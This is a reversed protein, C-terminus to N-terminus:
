RHRKAGCYDAKHAVVYGCDVDFNNIQVRHKRPQYNEYSRAATYACAVCCGIQPVFVQFVDIDRQLGFLITSIEYEVVSCDKVPYIAVIFIDRKLTQPLRCQLPSPLAAEILSKLLFPRATFFQCALALSISKLVVLNVRILV